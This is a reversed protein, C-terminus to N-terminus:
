QHDSDPRAPVPVAAASLAGVRAKEVIWDIVERADTIGRMGTGGAGTEDIGEPGSGGDRPLTGGGCESKFRDLMKAKSGEVVTQRHNQGARVFAEHAKERRSLLATKRSPYWRAAATRSESNEQSPALPTM